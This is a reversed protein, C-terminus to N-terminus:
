RPLWVIMIICFVVLAIFYRIFKKQAANIQREKQAATPTRCHPCYNLEDSFNKGCHSCSIESM